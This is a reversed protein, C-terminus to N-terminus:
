LKQKKPSSYLIKIKNKLNEVIDDIKSVNNINLGYKFYIINEYYNSDKKIVIYENNNKVIM